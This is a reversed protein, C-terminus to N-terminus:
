ESKAKISSFEQKLKVLEERTRDCRAFLKEMPEIKTDLRKLEIRIENIVKTIESKDTDNKRLGEDLRRIDRIATDTKAQMKAFAFVLAGVQLFLFAGEVILITWDQM